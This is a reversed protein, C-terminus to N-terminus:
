YILEIKRDTVGRNYTPFRFIGQVANDDIREGSLRQIIISDVNMVAYEIRGAIQMRLFYVM